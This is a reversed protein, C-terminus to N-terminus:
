VRALRSSDHSRRGGPTPRLPTTVTDGARLRTLVTDKRELHMEWGPNAEPSDHHSERGPNAESSDHSRRGGPTPRLPTTVIDGARLRTLVAGKRELHMEWRPNSEPSDHRTERGPNAESSDHNYRGGEPSDLSRRETSTCRGGLTPRPRTTVADGV